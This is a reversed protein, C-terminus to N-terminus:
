YCDGYYDALGQANIMADVELAAAYDPDDALVLPKPGQLSRLKDELSVAFFDNDGCPSTPTPKFRKAPPGDDNHTGDEEARRVVTKAERLLEALKAETLAGRDKRVDNLLQLRRDRAQPSNDISALDRVTKLGQEALKAAYRKGIGPVRVLQDDPSLDLISAAKHENKLRESLVHLEPSRVAPVSMNASLNTPTFELQFFGGNRSSVALFKLGSVFARGDTFPFVLSQPNNLYHDVYLGHGSVLRLALHMNATDRWLQGNLPDMLRVEFDPFTRKTFWRTEDFGVLQLQLQKGSGTQVPLPPALQPQTSESTVASMPPVKHAFAEHSTVADLIKTVCTEVRELRANVEAAYSMFTERLQRVEGDEEKVAVVKVGSDIVKTSPAHQPMM